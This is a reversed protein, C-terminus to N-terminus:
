YGGQFWGMTLGSTIGQPQSPKFCLSVLWGVPLICSQKDPKSDAIRSKRIEVKGTWEAEDEKKEKRESERDM